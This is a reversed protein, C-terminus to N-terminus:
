RFAHLDSMDLDRLVTRSECDQELSKSEEEFERLRKSISFDTRVHTSRQLGDILLHHLLPQQFPLLNQLGLTAPVELFM